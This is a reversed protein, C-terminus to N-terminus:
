VESISVEALHPCFSSSSSIILCNRRVEFKKREERDKASVEEESQADKSIQFVSVSSLM